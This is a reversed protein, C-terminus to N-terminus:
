RAVFRKFALVAKAADAAVFWRVTRAALGAQSLGGSGLGGVYKACPVIDKRIVDEFSAATGNGQRGGADGTGTRIHACGVHLNDPTGSSSGSGGAPTLPPGVFIQYSEIKALLM